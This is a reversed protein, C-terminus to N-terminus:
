SPAVEVVRNLQDHLYPRVCTETLLFFFAWCSFVYEVVGAAGIVSVTMLSGDLKAQRSTYFFKTTHCKCSAITTYPFFIMYKPVRNKERYMSLGPVNTLVM